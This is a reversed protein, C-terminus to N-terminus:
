HTFSKLLWGIVIGLGGFRIAQWFPEKLSSWSFLQSELNLEIVELQEKIKRLEERLQPNRTQSLENKAQKQRQLLEVQLQTDQQVQAYREKLAQLEGEVEALAQAFDVEDSASRESPEPPM